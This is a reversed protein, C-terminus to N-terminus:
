HLPVCCLLHEFFMQKIFSCICIEMQTVNGHNEGEGVFMLTSKTNPEIKSIFLFPFVSLIHKKKLSCCYCCCVQVFEEWFIALHGSVYLLYADVNIMLSIYVSAVHSVLVCCGFHCVFVALFYSYCCSCLADPVKM